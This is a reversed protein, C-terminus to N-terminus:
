PRNGATAAITAFLLRLGAWFAFTMVPLFVALLAVVPGACSETEATAPGIGLLLGYACVVAGAAGRFTRAGVQPYRLGIWLALLSAGIAYGVTIAGSSLGVM